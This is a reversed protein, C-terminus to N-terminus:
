HSQLESTHEESRSAYCAVSAGPAASAVLEFNGQFKDNLATDVAATTVIVTSGVYVKITLTDTGASATVEGHWRVRIRKGATLTSAPLTYTNGFYAEATATNTLTAVTSACYLAGGVTMSAGVESDQLTLAPAALPARFQTAPLDVVAM